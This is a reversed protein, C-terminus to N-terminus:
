EASDGHPHAAKVLKEAAAALSKRDVHVSVSLPTHWTVEVRGGRPAALVQILHPGFDMDGWWGLFRPDVTGPAHYVITVPQLSLGSLRDSYLAAFLTPKFSLVRQGDTSTGEPFILLRHGATLRDELMKRQEGADRASRRVFVTGTLRALWGIGPWKAVEEKSVFFLPVGANLVFIDLWSSHNAVYIGPLKMPTGVTQVPLALVRLVLRCVLVTVWGTWPRAIGHLPAEVVRVMVTAIMGLLLILILLMGRAGAKLWASLSLAPYRPLDESRWTPSM